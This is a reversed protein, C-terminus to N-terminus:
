HYDPVPAVHPRFRVTEINNRCIPFSRLYHPVLKGAGIAGHNGRRENKERLESRYTLQGIIKLLAEYERRLRSIELTEAATSETDQELWTRITMDNIWYAKAVDTVKQGEQIKKLVEEKIEKPYREPM